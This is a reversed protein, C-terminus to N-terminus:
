GARAETAEHLIRELWESPDGPQNMIATAGAELLPTTQAAAGGGGVVIIADQSANRISRILATAGAVMRPVSLSIGILDPQARRVLHPVQALEGNAAVTCAWGDERLGEALVDLGFRHTEGPTPVLLVKARTATWTAAPLLDLARTLRELGITVDVISATDDSWKEGLLRATPVLIHDRIASRSGWRQVLAELTERWQEDQRMLALLLREVDNARLEALRDSAADHVLVGNPGTAESQSTSRVANDLLAHRESHSGESQKRVRIPSQSLAWDFRESRQTRKQSRSTQHSHRDRLRPLVDESLSGALANVVNATEQAAHSRKDGVPFDSQRGVVRPWSREPGRGVKEQTPDKSM